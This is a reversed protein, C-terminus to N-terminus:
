EADPNVELDGNIFMWVFAWLAAGIPAYIPAWWDPYEASVLPLAFGAVAGGIAFLLVRRDRLTSEESTM